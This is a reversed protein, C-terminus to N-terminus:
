SIRRVQGMGMTTKRGVGTYFAFDALLNILRLLKMGAKAGAQRDIIFWCEGIFGVQKYEGFDLMRTELRHREIGVHREIEEEDPELPISSFRNWKDLLSQFVLRPLPLPLDFASRSRGFATPSYFRLGVKRPLRGEKARAAWNNYLEEFSSQGAWPHEEPHHYVKDVQFEADLLRFPGIRDPNEGLELLLQSLEGDLSTIRLWPGHNLRTGIKRDEQSFSVTFPKDRGGHLRGALRSDLKQVLGLFGAHAAKGMTPPTIIDKEGSASLSLVASILLSVM